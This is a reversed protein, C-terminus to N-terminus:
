EEEHAAPEEAAPQPAAAEEEAPPPSAEVGLFEALRKKLDTAAASVQNFAPTYYGLPGSTLKEHFWKDVVGEVDELKPM